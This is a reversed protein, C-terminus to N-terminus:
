RKGAKSLCSQCRGRFIIQAEDIVGPVSEPFLCPKEGKICAINMVAGCETCVFHHHWAGGEEYLARGPGADALMVLGHKVLADLSNYVSARPLPTQREQLIEVLEDASHHGKLEYLLSLILLRPRTVKVNAERLRRAHGKEETPQDLVSPKQRPNIEKMEQRKRGGEAKHSSKSVIWYLM